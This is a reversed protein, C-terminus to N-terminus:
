AEVEAVPPPALAPPADAREGHVRVRYVCTFDPHGWNDRVRLAVVGTDVGLARVREPVAFTQVNQAAHADYAFRALRLYLADRPLEAPHAEDDADDDDEGAARARAREALYERVRAVNEEGEVLAWLEMDRPATRMDLAVEKAVHDVSVADVRVPAALKVGLQGQAGAFPWCHGLHLEHHLATVPPRGVAYGHGTVLGLVAGGVGRPRLAYTESTLSPIVAAGGSHLAFDPRALLDAQTRAVAGDVLRGILAGVDSGDSARITLPGPAAGAKTWWGSAPKAAARTAAERGLELAEKAEGEVGALKDELAKLKARAEADSVPGSPASHRPVSALSARLAELERKLEGASTREATRAREEAESARKTEDRLSRELAVLKAQLGESKEAERDARNRHQLASTSLDGLSRELSLLRASLESVDAPPAGPPTYVPTAPRLGVSLRSLPESFAAYLGYATALLMLARLVHAAAGQNKGVFHAPAGILAGVVKGTWFLGSALAHLVGSLLAGVVHGLGYVAKGAFAGPSSPAESASRRYGDAEPLRTSAPSVARRSM